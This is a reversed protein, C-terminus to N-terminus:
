RSTDGRSGNGATVSGRGRAWALVEEASRTNLVDTATAWGRRATAIGFPLTAFGDAGHADSGIVLTVGLEVARRVDRDRLDLRRPYANIEMATGTEAAALLCTEVDLDAGEREGILRGTPHAIIDVHPNHIAALTRATFRQRDQRLGSHVAAVVLDFEALVEDPLDLSGDGRVEVETGALLRFGGALRRNAEAIATRQERVQEVTLGGAVGLGWTHDAVLGYKLGYGQAATAM